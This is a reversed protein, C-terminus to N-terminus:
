KIAVFLYDKIGYRSKARRSFSQNVFVRMKISPVNPNNLIFRLISMIHKSCNVLLELM